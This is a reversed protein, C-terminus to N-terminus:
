RYGVPAGPAMPREEEEKCIDLHNATIESFYKDEGDMGKYKSNRIRGYIHVLMGKKISDFAPTNRGQWLAVNHWTTEEHLGGNRDKFQENTAVPFRANRTSGAISIRPDAGVRGLIEVRNITTREM